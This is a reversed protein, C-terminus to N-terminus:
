QRSFVQIFKTLGWSCIKQSLLYLLLLILITLLSIVLSLIVPESECMLKNDILYNLFYSEILLMSYNPSLKISCGETSLWYIDWKYRFQISYWFWLEIFILRLIELRVLSELSSSISKLLGPSNLLVKWIVIEWSWDEVLNFFVVFPKLCLLLQGAIWRVKKQCRKPVDKRKHYERNRIKVALAVKPRVKIWGTSWIWHKRFHSIM